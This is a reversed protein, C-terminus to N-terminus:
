GRIKALTEDHPSQDTPIRGALRNALARWGEQRIKSQLSKIPINFEAALEEVPAGGCYAVFAATYPYAM